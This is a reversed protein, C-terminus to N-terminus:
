KGWLEIELIGKTYAADTGGGSGVLYLYSNAAPYATAMAKVTGATLDGACELLLAEAGLAADTIAVDETGTAVDSSYIDVDPEGGEPTELWTMRGAFISGNKAATIQGIHCAATASKGIVDAAASSSLGTLDILITTRILGGVKVVSHECITGTGGSIGAGPTMDDLILTGASVLGSSNLVLAKSATATGATASLLAVNAAISAEQAATLAAVAQFSCSSATGENVYFATGTSGDTHQFICGTQYGRTADTPVTAGSALLLGASGPVPKQIKLLTCIREIM